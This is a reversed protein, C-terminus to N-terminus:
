TFLEYLENEIAEHEEILRQIQNFLNLNEYGNKKCQDVFGNCCTVVEAMKDSLREEVENQLYEWYGMKETEDVGSENTKGVITKSKLSELISNEM